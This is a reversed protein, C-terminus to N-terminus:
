EARTGGIVGLVTQCVRNSCDTLDFEDKMLERAAAGYNSLDGTKWHEYALSIYKALEMHDRTAFVWGSESTVAEALAGATSVISPVGMASAELVAGHNDSVSPSVSIDASAYASRVDQLTNIWCVSENIGDRIAQQMLSERYSDGGPGFGSGVLLLQASPNSSLFRKWAALLTEHGKIGVESHVLKKPAYFYAVMIVTFTDRLNGKDGIVPMEPIQGKPDFWQVDVGYPVARLRKSPYGLELYRDYTYRSGAIVRHDIRCLFREVLRIFQNELYLPGAVMHVRRIRTFLTAFRTALASAYLHYLVASIRRQTLIRRLRHIGVITSIRMRFEFDFNISVVEFRTDSEALDNLATRLRGDGSPIVALVPIGADLLASIQPIIWMAGQNTKVVVAVRREKSSECKPKARKNSM